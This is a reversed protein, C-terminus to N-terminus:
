MRSNPDSQMMGFLVGSPDKVYALWGVGELHAKPYVVSGGNAKVKAIATDINEVDITNVTGSLKGDPRYFGGDIGPTGQKGTMIMWYDEGQEIPYSSFEWGFVNSYFKKAAEVDTTPIEFHIVRAM